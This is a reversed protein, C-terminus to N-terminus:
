LESVQQKDSATMGYSKITVRANVYDEILGLLQDESEVPISNGAAAMTLETTLQEQYVLDITPSVPIFTRGDSHVNVVEQVPVDLHTVAIKDVGGNVRSAYNLLALDLSGVRWGGQWRGFANHAEHFKAALADDKYETPFPGFGHRTTYSRTVGIVKGPKLGASMLLDQANKSTTTAWTTHPHFGYWEDLLVGQSGEFVNDGERLRANIEDDTIINLDLDALLDHYNDILEAISHSSKIGFEQEVAQKHHTLKRELEAKNAPLLDSMIVGDSSTINWSMTEGIGLGCSGHANQGRLIERQQNAEVHYPTTVLASESIYTNLFPNVNTVSYIHEAEVVMNFPNVLVHKTLITPVGRLTGSGFLSFTHHSGDELVVNHAAQGGGSFRVVYNIKKQSCLYDVITGKGEDGFGLGIVIDNTMESWVNLEITAYFYGM